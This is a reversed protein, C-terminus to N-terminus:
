LEITCSQSPPVFHTVILGYGASDLIRHLKQFFAVANNTPYHKLAVEIDIPRGAPDEYADVIQGSEIFQLYTNVKDQLLLLHQREDSWDLHDSIVLEIHDTSEHQCIMDVTETQEVSM